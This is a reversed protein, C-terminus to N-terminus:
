ISLLAPWQFTYSAAGFGFNGYLFVSANYNVSCRIGRGFGEFNQKRNQFNQTCIWTRIGAIRVAAKRLRV